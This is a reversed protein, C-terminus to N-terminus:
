KLLIVIKGATAGEAHVLRYGYAGSPAPRGAGDRGDWEVEASGGALDGALLERVLRGSADVLIVRAARLAHETHISFTVTPNFPNPSASIRVAQGAAPADAVGIIAGPLYVRTRYIKGKTSSSGACWVDVSDESVPAWDIGKMEAGTNVDLNWGDGGDATSWIGGISGFYNGGVAFGLDEDFFLLARIPYPPNLIRGSWNQGGDITRHVWGQVPDSIQGGGTWGHTTDPFSVGGDFVPDISPRCDYSLGGDRSRCFSIGCIYVYLIDPLFTFNGSFWGGSPDALVESWDGAGAGGNTTVFTTGGGINTTVGHEPDAFQVITLWDDPDIAIAPTWTAGGDHSWRAIGEGTSNNFGTIIVTSADFAHVGYWYYPFGQNLTQTWTEGNTTRYVRGLEASAFGHTADAM